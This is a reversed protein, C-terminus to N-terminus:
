LIDRLDLIQPFLFVKSRLDRYLGNEAGPAVKQVDPCTKLAYQELAISRIHYQLTTHVIKCVLTVLCKTLLSLMKEHYLLLDFISAFPSGTGLASSHALAPSKRNCQQGVKPVTFVDVCESELTERDNIQM